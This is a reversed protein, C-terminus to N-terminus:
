LIMAVLHEPICRSLIRMLQGLSPKGIEQEKGHCFILHREDLLFPLLRVLGTLVSAQVIFAQWM